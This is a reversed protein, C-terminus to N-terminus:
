PCVKETSIEIGESKNAEGFLAITNANKMVEVISSGKVEILDNSFLARGEGPIWIFSVDDFMYSQFLVHSKHLDEAKSRLEFPLMTYSVLSIM